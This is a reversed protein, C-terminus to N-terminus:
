GARAHAHHQRRGVGVGGDGLGRRGGEASEELVDHGLAEELRRRVVLHQLHDEPGREERDRQRLHAPLGLSDISPNQSPSISTINLNTPMTMRNAGIPMPAAMATVTLWLPM